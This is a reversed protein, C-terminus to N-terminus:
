RWDDRYRDDWRVSEEERGHDEDLMGDLMGWLDIGRSAIWAEADPVAVGDVEVLSVTLGGPEAPEWRDPHGSRIAPAGREADVVIVCEAGDDTYTTLEIEM